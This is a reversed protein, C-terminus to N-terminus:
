VGIISSFVNKLSEEKIANNIFVYSEINNEYKSFMSNRHM